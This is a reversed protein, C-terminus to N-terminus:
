KKITTIMKQLNAVVADNLETGFVVSSILMKHQLNVATMSKGGLVVGDFLSEWVSNAASFDKLEKREQTSTSAKADEIKKGKHDKADKDYEYRAGHGDKNSKPAYRYFKGDICLANEEFFAVFDKASMKAYNPVLVKFAADYEKISKIIGLGVEISKKAKNGASLSNSAHERITMEMSEVNTATWENKKTAM